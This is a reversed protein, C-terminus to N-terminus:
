PIVRVNYTTSTPTASGGSINCVRVTVTGASSVWANWTFGTGPDAAPSVAVAMSTAASTVSATGTTCIGAALASGGVSSTTGSLPLQSTLAITGNADQFNQARTTSFSGGLTLPNSGGNLFQLGRRISTGGFADGLFLQSNGGANFGFASVSHNYFLNGDCGSSPACFVLNFSSGNASEFTHYATAAGTDDRSTVGSGGGPLSSYGIGSGGNLNDKVHLSVDPATGNVTTTTICGLCVAGKTAFVTGTPSGGFLNFIGAEEVSIDTGAPLLGAENVEFNNKSWVGQLHNTGAGLLNAGSSNSVSVGQVGGGLVGFAAVLSCSGVCDAVDVRDLAITEIGGGAATVKATVVAGDIAETLVNQVLALGSGPGSGDDQIVIGFGIITTRLTPDGVLIEGCDRFLISAHSTASPQVFYVGGIVAMGFCGNGAVEAISCDFSLAMGTGSSGVGSNVNILSIDAFGADATTYFDICNATGGSCRVDLNEMRV